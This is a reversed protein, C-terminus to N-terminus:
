AVNLQATTYRTARCYQCHCTPSVCGNTSVTSEELCTQVWRVAWRTVRSMWNRTTQTTHDRRFLTRLSQRCRIEPTQDAKLRWGCNMRCREASYHWRSLSQSCIRNSLRIKVQLIIVCNGDDTVDLSKWLSLTSKNKSLRLFCSLWNSHETVRERLGVAMPSVAVWISCLKLQNEITIVDAMWCAIWSSQIVAVM